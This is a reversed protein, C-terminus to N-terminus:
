AATERLSTVHRRRLIERRYRRVHYTHALEQCESLASLTLQTKSLHHQKDVRTLHVACHPVGERWLVHLLADGDQVVSSDFTCVVRM